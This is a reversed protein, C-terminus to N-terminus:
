KTNKSEAAAKAAAKAKAAAIEKDTALRLDEGRIRRRIDTSNAVELADDGPVLVTQGGHPNDKAHILVTRPVEDGKPAPVVVFITENM